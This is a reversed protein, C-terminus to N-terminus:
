FIRWIRDARVKEENEERGLFSARLLEVGSGIVYGPLGMRNFTHLDPSPSVDRPPHPGHDRAPQLVLVTLRLDM